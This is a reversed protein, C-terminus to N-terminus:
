PISRLPKGQQQSALRNLDKNGVGTLGEMLLVMTGTHDYVALDCILENGGLGAPIRVIVNFTEGERPALNWLARFGTPLATIGFYQRSWIGGMQMASDLLIPDLTWPLVGEIKLCDSIPSTGLRGVVLDRGMTDVTEIGQFLKGHFMWNRYIYEADPLQSLPDKAVPVEFHAPFVAPPRLQTESGDRVMVARCKFCTRNKNKASSLTLQLVAGDATTHDEVARLIVEQAGTDFVIGCPIQLQELKLLRMGPRFICAAEAFLEASIAMPLVAIGDITHDKLYVDVESDLTLNMELSSTSCQVIRGSQLRAGSLAPVDRTVAKVLSRIVQQPEAANNSTSNSSTRTVTGGATDPAPESPTVPKGVLLIEVDGPSGYAFEQRFNTVGDAVEIMAWGYKAFMTELEPRAMGARWPGWGISVVRGACKQQLTGALKNLVENAAVYDAQGANGTRGVVSSFLVFYKLSELQLKRSLVLASDVKTRFVRDFSELSKDKIFADEIVGAGHIVADIKGFMDYLRDILGALENGKRVDLAYYQVTAGAKELRELNHRIERDKLLDRYVAEVAPVNVPKGSRKFEGMIASKLEAAGTLGEAWVPDATRPREGRGLIVLTPKYDKALSYTLDATIGRAGGTVLVVSSRDLDMKLPDGGNTYLPAPVVELGRRVGDRYGIEVRNDEACLEAEILRVLESAPESPCVQVVKSKVAPWERAVTKALGGIGALIPQAFPEEVGYTGDGTTVALWRWSSEAPLVAHLAKSSVFLGYVSRRAAEEVRPDFSFLPSTEHQTQELKHEASFHLFAVSNEGASTIEALATKTKEFNCLDVHISHGDHTIEAQPTDILRLTRFGGKRLNACVLDALESEQGAVVYFSNALKAAPLAPLEVSRLVARAVYSTKPPPSVKDPVSPSLREPMKELPAAGAGSPSAEVVPRSTSLLDNRIWEMIGQLTKTGALKEIGEELNKQRDDPLIKRFNNLIEVRKISDIGLDAELDLEPDLMEPPYGTRESVITILTGILAEADVTSAVSFPSNSKSVGGNGSGAPVEFSTQISGTTSSSSNSHQLISPSVTHTTAPAAPGTGPAHAKLGPAQKGENRGSATQGSNRAPVTEHRGNGNTNVVVDVVDGSGNSHYHSNSRIKAEEMHRASFSGSERSDGSAGLFALMVREQTGLFNATMELMNQQFEVMVQDRDTLSSNSRAAPTRSIVSHVGEKRSLSHGGNPAVNLRNDDSKAENKQEKQLQPAGNNHGNLPPPVNATGPAHDPNKRTAPSVGPAGKSNVGSIAESTSQQLNGAPGTDMKQLEKKGNGGARSTTAATKSPVFLPQKAESHGAPSSVSRSNGDGLNTDTTPAFNQLATGPSVGTSPAEISSGTPTLAIRSRMAVEQDNPTRVPAAHIHGSDPDFRRIQASNVIYHLRKRAGSSTAPESSNFRGDFRHAYLRQQDIEIGQVALLALLHLLQTIGNRGNRDLSVALHPRDSLTDNVLGTLITGPGCEVFVEIGSAYIQEIEKKFAVPEVLHRALLEAYEEVDDPYPEATTNSFVKAQPKRFDLLSLAAHLQDRAPQMLPSHFAASVAIARTKIGLSNLRSIASEIADVEGSIICQNPSNINALNIGALLPLLKAVQEEGGAVAAMAGKCEGNTRGLIEGRTEAISFLDTESMSGAAALAVYEGFSHGGVVEPRIGFGKLLRYAALGAAAVAPQALRTDTLENHQLQREDDTFAPPPFVYASLRRPLRSRLVDDAQEFTERVEKFVLSLDRLMNVQQAGQGPFLFAVRPAQETERETFYIGRPDRLNKKKTDAAVQKAQSLKLALDDLTHAVISLMMKPASHVNQNKIFTKYALEALTVRTADPVPSVPRISAKIAAETLSELATIYKILADRSSARLVFLECPLKLYASEQKRLAQGSYEELIAHFNTGGFGFASVGARRPAAASTSSHIWPRAESNIYFPSTAFKCAPNPNEVGITPPLVKHFLSKAVKIMSALGASCKTHGIMTKVSGIACSQPEAGAAAFVNSLAEVEAKDGAVTGTGHAEVLEVSDPSIGADRYARTLALMQGAPRPATLSLDRGDSSGGIGRVLAYIRDGDREADTLRKLVLVALGESIVIGDATADFTRCRGRPSLAHTKSFSLFDGPQNHTDTSALLVCDSGGARLERVAAHLAALSSACAADICFNVGGLDFRNAVRGAIVNGLYGPFSDETWEPLRKEVIKRYEEPMDALTWDLMSRLSYFATIPGHGANALFVSTREKNFGRTDFGADALAARTVELILLQLPDISALSAPPIGYISPDFPIDQLFGGWKSSIKDRALPDPHYLRNADWQYQPVEEITDVKNLINEWFSELDNAKPFLCSMGVIAIPEGVSREVAAVKVPEDALARLLESGGQCVLEHLEAMTTRKERLAAVQGIMYMGDNWQKEESVPVIGAGQEARAIGKSATRLRGLNMLELEQRVENKARGSEELKRRTQDFTDKYPSTLCRIAHGPGTEFLVTETCEIAAKQFKECIAGNVVAEETFLYATGMLLGLKVGQQALPAALGAVMAASLDDHIGGAFVVDFSAADNTKKVAKLLVDIMQEWLVFSSRPGVHGGCERGEFIFRRCGSEIFSELLLPSPVHLYTRIGLQELEASQDPRGGAILAFPPRFKEIVAMQEQRLQHPVFGLIGVGWSSGELAKSTKKLLQEVEEGRMLALALFPLAGNTFVARAFEATDSVRTMAGQLLPYRTANAVALPAGASFPQLRAASRCHEEVAVRMSSFVGAVSVYKEAFRAAFAGEQGLPLVDASAGTQYNQQSITSYVFERNDIGSSTESQGATDMRTQFALARPSGTRLRVRYQERTGIHLCVTETGDLRAVFERDVPGLPSERTLLLQADLVVGRAGGVYAAAATHVGIGGRLWIPIQLERKCRQLLIASTEEGVRGGAENGKVIVVDAGAAEAMTAEAVSIVECFVAVNHLHLLSVARQLSDLAFEKRGACLVGVNSAPALKNSALLEFISTLEDIQDIGCRIGCRGGASQRLMKRSGAVASAQDLFEVDYVGIGNARAAAIAITPNEAADIGFIPHLAM